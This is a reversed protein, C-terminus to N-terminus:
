TKLKCNEFALKFATITIKQMTSDEYSFIFIVSIITGLMRRKTVWDLLLWWFKTTLLVLISCEAAAKQKTGFVTLGTTLM